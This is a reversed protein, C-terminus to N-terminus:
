YDDRGTLAQEMADATKMVADLALTLTHTDANVGLPASFVVLYEEGSRQVQWAGITQRANAQLLGNAMEPPVQGTGRYAISWLDRVEFDGLKSTGSSVWAIQSRGDDLSYKLRYDAEDDIVYSLGADTLQRAVRGDATGAAPAQALAVPALGALTAALMAVGIMKVMVKEVVVPEPAM